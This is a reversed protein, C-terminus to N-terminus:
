KQVWNYQTSSEATMLSVNNYYKKNISALPLTVTELNIIGKNCQMDAPFYGTKEISNKLKIAAKPKIIYAQLGMAYETDITYKKRSAPNKYEIIKQKNYKADEHNQVYSNQFKNFPDLLLFEDFDLDNSIPQLVMADQEFIILPENLEISKLWLSYHSLFCGHVGIRGKKLKRRWSFVNLKDQYFEISEKGFIGDFKEISLKHEKGSRICDEALVESSEVGKLRIVYAKMKNRGHCLFM